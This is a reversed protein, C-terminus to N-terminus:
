IKGNNQKSARSTKNSSNIDHILATMSVKAFLKCSFSLHLTFLGSPILKVEIFHTILGDYDAQTTAKSIRGLPM